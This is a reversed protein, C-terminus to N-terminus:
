RYKILYHLAINRPRSETSTAVPKGEPEAPSVSGPEAPEGTSTPEAPATASSGEEGGANPTPAAHYAHVHDRLADAQLSGVGAAKGHGTPATREDADPDLGAGSDVGRLFLGRCDPIHFTTKGDGGYLNGLAGFLEPYHGVSLARGDCVMWGMAEVLAVPAGTEAPPDAGAAPGPDSDAGSDPVSGPGPGGGPSKPFLHNPGTSEPLLRGAYACVAGVPAPSGPGFGLGPGFFSM